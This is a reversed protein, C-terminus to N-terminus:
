GKDNDKSKTKSESIKLDKGQKDKDDKDDQSRIDQGVHEYKVDEQFSELLRGSAQNRLLSRLAQKIIARFPNGDDSHISFLIVRINGWFLIGLTDKAGRAGNVELEALTLCRMGIRKVLYQFRDEPLAKTFMDALQYETRVFYLEIIGNEVLSEFSAEIEEKLPGNLFAMKVDMQYIPFSKHAAYAVFIWVAELRAVLAFSENKGFPKTKDVLEKAQLETLSIILEETRPVMCMEPDTALQRRTQVLKSPNGRVQSLPIDDVKRVPIFIPNIFEAQQIHTDKALNDNNEEAHVNITLTTPETSSPNNTTPPTDQQKSNNTPSSSKNISSTGANFFEDYLPGFLLDLEQQSPATTDNEPLFGDEKYLECRLGTSAASSERLCNEGEDRVSLPLQWKAQQVRRTPAMTETSSDTRITNQKLDSWRLNEEQGALQFGEFKHQTSTDNLFGVYSPEQQYRALEHFRTTYGDINSGVMKHNWFKTELKQIEDGLCYEKILLKKFDEWPQAITAERGRTQVLTNWWTLVRGQLMSSGFKVQSEEIGFFEKAGSARFTKINCSQIAERQNARNGGLAHVLQTLLNPLATNLQQAVEDPAENPPNTNNATNRRTNRGAVIRGSVELESESNASDNVRLSSKHSM